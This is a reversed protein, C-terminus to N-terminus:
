VSRSLLLSDNCVWKPWERRWGREEAEEVRKTIGDGRVAMNVSAIVVGGSGGRGSGRGMWRGVGGVRVEGMCEPHSWWEPSVGCASLQDRLVKEGKVDVESEVQFSPFEWMGALLGASHVVICCVPRVCM